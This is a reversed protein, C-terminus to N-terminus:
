GEEEEEQRRPILQPDRRVAEGPGGAAYFPPHMPMCVCQVEQGVQLRCGTAVCAPSALGPCTREAEPPRSEACHRLQHRQAADLRGVQIAEAAERRLRLRGVHSALHRPPSTAAIHRQPWSAVLRAAGGRQDESGRTRAAVVSGAQLCRTCPLCMTLVRYACPSCMTLVRYACPLCVTLVRYACPACVTLM